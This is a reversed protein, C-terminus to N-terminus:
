GGGWEGVNGTGWDYRASGYWYWMVIVCRVKPLVRVPIKLRSFVAAGILLGMLPVTSFFILARKPQGADRHEPV